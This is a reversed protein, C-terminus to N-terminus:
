PGMQAGEYNCRQFHHRLKLDSNTDAEIQSFLNHSYHQIHHNKVKIQCLLPEGNELEGNHARNLRFKLIADVLIKEAVNDTISALSM